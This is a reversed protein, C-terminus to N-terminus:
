ESCAGDEEGEELLLKRMKLICHARRLDEERTVKINWWNGPVLDVERGLDLVLSGDDTADRGQERAREHAARILGLEFVQPTQVAWVGRRDLATVASEEAVEGRMLTDSVQLAVTAAGHRHVAAVADRILRQTLFPRAADHILVHTFGDLAQLGRWVSERRVEGGAVLAVLKDALGAAALRSRVRDQWGAPVVIAVGHVLPSDHLAEAAYELLMRGDLVRFQKPEGTGCREGRGGAVLLGVLRQGGAQASSEQM